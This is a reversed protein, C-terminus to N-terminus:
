NTQRSEINDSSGSSSLAPIVMFNLAFYGITILTLYHLSKNPYTYNITSYFLLPIAIWSYVGIRDSFPINFNFYFIISSLIFYKILFLNSRNKLDGLKLFLFLFLSNYVVFDPRFGIRYNTEGQFVLRQFDEGGISSLFWIKDFGFGIFALGIATFYLIFFYKLKINKAIQAFIICAIPILATGHCLFAIFLFSFCLKYNKEIMYYVGFLVFPIALGNRITNVQHSFFVFSSAILFFLLLSSGSKGYNTYLRVFKYMSLNIIISITLIFFTFSKFPFTVYMIVEFILDTDFYNFFDILNTRQIGQLYYFYYYNWTDTGIKLGRTGFLLIVLIVFIILINRDTRKYKIKDISALYRIILSGFIVFGFLIWSYINYYDETDFHDFLYYM